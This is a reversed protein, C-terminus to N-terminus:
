DIRRTIQHIFCGVVRLGEDIMSECMGEMGPTLIRLYCGDVYDPIFGWLVADMFVFETQQLRLVWYYGLPISRGEASQLCGYISPPELTWVRNPGNWLSVLQPLYHLEVRKLRPLIAANNITQGEMEIIVKVSSCDGVILEEMNSLCHLTSWTLIFELKPCTHVSLSKLNDLSGHPVPGNWLSVLQPLYHLKVRKLHPLIAGNSITQGEMEIIVKVSSCDEVILEEMNSLCHLMPWNLIFELKPCTHVSLFKLRDLSGHPVPGKWINELRCLYHMSLRQLCPLVSDAREKGDIIEVINPCERVVCFKLEKFNTIGFDSLREIVCHHDLYFAAVRELVGAVKRLLGNGNVFRLCQDHKGYDSEVDDPVRSVIRKIDKGIVFNFKGLQGAKWSLSKQIFLELLEVEPFYFQLYTLESLASVDQTIAKANNKWRWDVPDVVISLAQLSLLKSIIGSSILVPPLKLYESDDYAGYFSVPLSRLHKLKAIEDPLNYVETGSLDLVEICELNGVEPPLEDLNSCDRLFLAHLGTLKFLSPPLSRVGTKSLDLVQLSPMDDFFSDAITRLYRNNQLFLFELNECSLKKPLSSFENKMLAIVSPLQWERESPPETLGSSLLIFDSINPRGFLGSLLDEGVSYKGQDLELKPPKEIKENTRVFVMYDDEGFLLNGFGPDKIVNHMKTSHGGHVILLQLNFFQDCRGKMSAIISMPPEVNLEPKVRPERETESATIETETEIELIPLGETESSITVLSEARSVSLTRETESAIAAIESEELALNEATPPPMTKPEVETKISLPSTWEAALASEEQPVRIIECEPTKQFTPLFTAIQGPMLQKRKKPFFSGEKPQFRPSETPKKLKNGFQAETKHEAEHEVVSLSSALEEPGTVDTTKAQLTSLGPFLSVGFVPEAKDQVSLTSKSKTWGVADVTREENERLPMEEIEEIESKSKMEDKIIPFLESISPTSLADAEKGHLNEPLQAAKMSEEAYKLKAPSIGSEVGSTAKSEFKTVHDDIKTKGMFRYKVTINVPGVNILDLQFPSKKLHDVIKNFMSSLLEGKVSSSVSKLDSKLMGNAQHEIEEAEEVWRHFLKPVIIGQLLAKDIVRTAYVILHECELKIAELKMELHKVNGSPHVFIRKLQSGGLKTSTRKM